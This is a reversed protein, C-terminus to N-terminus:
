PAAMMLSFDSDQSTILVTKADRDLELTLAEDRLPAPATWEDEGEILEGATYVGSELALVDPEPCNLHPGCASVAMSLAIGLAFLAGLQAVRARNNQQNRSM